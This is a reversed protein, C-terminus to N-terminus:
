VSREWCEEAGNYKDFPTHGHKNRAIESDHEKMENVHEAFYGPDEYLAWMHDEAASARASLLLILRDFDLQAPVHYPAEAAMIALSDFGNVETDAKLRPESVVPFRDSFM